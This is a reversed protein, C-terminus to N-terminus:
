RRRRGCWGRCRRGGAEILGLVRFVAGEEAVPAQPVVEGLFDGALVDIDVFVAARAKWDDGVGADDVIADGDLEVAAAGAGAAEALGAVEVAGDAVAAFVEDLLGDVAAEGGGALALDGQEGEVRDVVVPQVTDDVVHVVGGLVVTRTEMGDVRTSVKLTSTASARWRPPLRPPLRVKAGSAAVARMRRTMLLSIESSSRSSVQSMAKWRPKRVM